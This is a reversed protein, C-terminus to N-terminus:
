IEIDDCRKPRSKNKYIYTKVLNLNDIWKKENSFFYKSYKDDNIFDTWMNYIETDKM